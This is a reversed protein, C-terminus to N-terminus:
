QGVSAVNMVANPNRSANRSSSAGGPNDASAHCNADGDFSTQQSQQRLPLAHLCRSEAVHAIYSAIGDATRGGPVDDNPFHGV